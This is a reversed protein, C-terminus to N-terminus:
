VKKITLNFERNGRYHGNEDFDDDSDYTFVELIISEVEDINDVGYLKISTMLTDDDVEDLHSYFAGDEQHVDDYLYVYFYDSFKFIDPELFNGEYSVGSNTMFKINYGIKYNSIDDYENYYKYWIDKFSNGDVKKEDTFYVDFPGIDKNHIFDAYYTDEILEKNHFDDTELFFGLKIPNDDIYEDVVEDETPEESIVEEVKANSCGILLFICLFLLIKKM